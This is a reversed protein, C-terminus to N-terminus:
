VALPSPRKPLVPAAPDEVSHSRDVLGTNKATPVLLAVLILLLLLPIIRNQPQPQPQQSQPQPQPKQPVIIAVEVPRLPPRPMGLADRVRETARQRATADSIRGPGQPGLIPQRPAGPVESYMVRISNVEELGLDYEIDDVCTNPGVVVSNSVSDFTSGVYLVALTYPGVCLSRIGGSGIKVEDSDLRSKDYSGQGIRIGGSMGSQHVSSFLSVGFDRPLASRTAEVMYVQVSSIKDDMGVAALDPIESPGVVTRAGGGSASASLGAYLVAIYGADVRISSVENSLDEGYSSGRVTGEFARQGTHFGPQLRVSPGGYKADRYLIVPM